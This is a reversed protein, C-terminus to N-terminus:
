INFWPSVWVYKVHFIHRLLIKIPLASM